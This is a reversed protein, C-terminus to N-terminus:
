HAHGHEKVQRLSDQKISDKEAQLLSDKKVQLLSDAEKKIKEAAMELEIKQQAEEIAKQEKNKQDNCAGLGMLALVIIAFSKKLTM